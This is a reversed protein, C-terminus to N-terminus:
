QLVALVWNKQTQIAPSLVSQQMASGKQTVYIFSIWFLFCESIRCQPINHNLM